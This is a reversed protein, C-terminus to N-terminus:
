RGIQPTPVDAIDLEVGIPIKWHVNKRFSYLRVRHGGAFSYNEKVLKVKEGCIFHQGDSIRQLEGWYEGNVEKLPVRIPEPKKM